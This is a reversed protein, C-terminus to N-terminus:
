PSGVAHCILRDSVQARHDPRPRRTSCHTSSSRGVVAVMALARRRRTWKSPPYWLRSREARGFTGLYEANEVLLAKHVLRWRAHIGIQQIFAAIQARHWWTDGAAFRPRVLDAFTSALRRM